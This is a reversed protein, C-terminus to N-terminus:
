RSPGPGAPYGFGISEALGYVLTGFPSPCDLNFLIAVPSFNSTRSPGASDQPALPSPVSSRSSPGFHSDMLTALMSIPSTLDIVNIFSRYEFAFDRPPTSVTNSELFQDISPVVLELPDANEDDVLEGKDYQAVLCPKTTVIEYVSFSSYDLEIFKTADLTAVLVGSIFVNTASDRALIRFIDGGVRRPM